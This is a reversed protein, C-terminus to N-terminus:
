NLVLSVAEFPKGGRNETQQLQWQEWGTDRQFLVASITLGTRREQRLWGWLHIRLCDRCAKGGFCKGGESLRPVYEQQSGLKQSMLSMKYNRGPSEAAAPKQLHLTDGGGQWAKSSHRGRWQKKAREQCSEECSQPHREMTPLIAYNREEYVEWCSHNCLM